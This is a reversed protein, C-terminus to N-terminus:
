AELYQLVWKMAKGLNEMHGSVVGLAHSIYLWRMAYKESGLLM